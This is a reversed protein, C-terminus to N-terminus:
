RRCRPRVVRWISFLCYSVAEIHPDCFSPLFRRGVEAWILKLASGASWVHRWSGLSNDVNGARCTLRDTCVLELSLIIQCPDVPGTSYINYSRNVKAAVENTHPRCPKSPPLSEHSAHRAGDGRLDPPVCRLQSCAARVRQKILLSTWGSSAQLAPSSTM